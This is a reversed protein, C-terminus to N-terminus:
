MAISALSLFDFYLDFSDFSEEDTKWLPNIWAHVIEVSFLIQITEPM